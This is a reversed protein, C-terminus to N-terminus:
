ARAQWSKPARRSHFVALVEVQQQPEIKYFVVYPFRQVVARRVDEFV